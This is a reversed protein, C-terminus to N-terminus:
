SSWNTRIWEISDKADLQQCSNGTRTYFENKGENNFYMPMHSKEIEIICVTKDLAKEFRTHIYPHWLKGVYKDIIETIKLQFGDEDGKRLHSNKFDNELGLISKDDAVGILLTGGNRSNLFCVISKAIVMGLSKNVNNNKYDWLLSSKFEVKENEGNSILTKLDKSLM